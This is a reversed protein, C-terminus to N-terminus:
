HIQHTNLTTKTSKSNKTPNKTPNPNKIPNKTPKPDKISEKTPKPDKTLKLDKTPKTKKTPKPDKTHKLKINQKLIDQKQKLINFKEVLKNIHKIYKDKKNPNAKMETKYDKIQEKIKLLKDTFTQLIIKHKLNDIQILYKNLKTNKYKDKIIKIQEKILQMKNISGGTHDPGQKLKKPGEKFKAPGEKFKEIAAHTFLATELSSKAGVSRASEFPSQVNPVASRYKKYAVVPSSSTANLREDEKLTSHNASSLSELARKSPYSRSSFLHGLVEYSKTSDELQVVDGVTNNSPVASVTLVADHDEPYKERCVISNSASHDLTQTEMEQLAQKFNEREEETLSEKAIQRQYFANLQQNRLKNEVWCLGYEGDYIREPETNPDDSHFTSTNPHVLSVVLKWSKGEKGSKTMTRLPTKYFYSCAKRQEPSVNTRDFFRVLETDNLLIDEMSQKPNNDWKVPFNFDGLARFVKAYSSRMYFNSSPDGLLTPLVVFAFYMFDDKSASIGASGEGRCNFHVNSVILNNMTSESGDSEKYKYVPHFFLVTKMTRLRCICVRSADFDLTHMKHNYELQPNLVMGYCKPLQSDTSSSSDYYTYCGLIYNGNNLLRCIIKHNKNHVDREIFPIGCAGGWGTYAKWFSTNIRINDEPQHLTIYKISYDPNGSVTSKLEDIDQPLNLEPNYKGLKTPDKTPGLWRCSRQFEIVEHDPLMGKKRTVKNALFHANMEQLCVIATIRKIATYSPIRDYNYSSANLGFCLYAIAEREAQFRPFILNNLNATLLGVLFPATKDRMKKYEADSKIDATKLDITTKRQVVVGAVPNRNYIEETLNYQFPMYNPDEINSAAADIQEEPFFLPYFSYATIQNSLGKGPDNGVATFGEYPNFYYSNFGSTIANYLLSFLSPHGALLTNDFLIYIWRFGPNEQEECDNNINLNFLILASKGPHTSTNRIFQIVQFIDYNRFRRETPNKARILTLYDFQKLLMTKNPNSNVVSINATTLHDQRAIFKNLYVSQDYEALTTM